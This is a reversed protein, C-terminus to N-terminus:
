VKKWYNPTFLILVTYIELRGTIMLGTLLSKSWVSLHAFNAVPGVSGIGPGIGAMCTAVSSCSTAPSNGFFVMLISGAAFIVFYVFIFTLVSNNLSDNLPKKNLHLTIIANPYILQKFTKILNKIWILHRAMKIGGATSGTSGGLFM